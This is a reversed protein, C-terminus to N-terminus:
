RVRYVRRGGHEFPGLGAAGQGPGVDAQFDDEVAPDVGPAVVAAQDEDVEAVAVAQGLDDEFGAVARGRDVLACLVEAVLVDDPDPALDDVRALQRCPRVWIELGAEDLDVRDLELDEVGGGRGGELDVAGLGVLLKPELVTIQVEASGGHLLDEDEAVLHGMNIRFVMDARSKRSTSVGMRPRLVGSPARSKRTGLRTWGEGSRHRAATAGAQVLLDQHDGAEVAVELDGAAEAILVEPGVALGLESLEVDLHGEDFVFVDDPRHFVQDDFEGPLEGPLGQGEGQGPDVVGVRHLPEAVVPGVEAVPHLQFVQGIMAASVSKM